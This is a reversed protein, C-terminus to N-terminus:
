KFVVIYKPLIAQYNKVVILPYRLDTGVVGTISDFGDPIVFEQGTKTKDKKHGPLVDCLLIAKYGERNQLSNEDCYSSHDALCFTEGQKPNMGDCAIRCVGCNEYTCVKGTKVINCTLRTGYFYEESTYVKESEM